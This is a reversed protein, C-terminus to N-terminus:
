NVVPALSIGCRRARWSTEVRAAVDGSDFLLVGRRLTLTVPRPLQAGSVPQSPSLFSPLVPRSSWGLSRPDRGVVWNKLKTRNISRQSRGQTFVADPSSGPSAGTAQLKRVPITHVGKEYVGFGDRLCIPGLKAVLPDKGSGATAAKEMANEMRSGLRAALPCVAGRVRIHRGLSAPMGTGRRSGGTGIAIPRHRRGGRSRAIGDGGGRSGGWRQVPGRTHLNVSMMDVDVEVGVARGGVDSRRHLREYRSCGRLVMRTLPRSCVSAMHAVVREPYLWARHSVHMRAGDAGHSATLHLRALFACM